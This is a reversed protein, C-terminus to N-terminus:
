YNPVIFTNTNQFVVFLRYQKKNLYMIAVYVDSCCAIHKDLIVNLIIKFSYVNVLLNLKIDNEPSILFM